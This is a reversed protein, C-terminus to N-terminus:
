TSPWRKNYISYNPTSFFTKKCLHEKTLVYM